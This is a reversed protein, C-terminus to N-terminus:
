KKAAEGNVAALAAQAQKKFEDVIGAPIREDFQQLQVAAELALLAEKAAPGVARMVKFAGIANSIHNKDYWNGESICRKMLPVAEKSKAGFKALVNFCFDRYEQITGATIDGICFSLAGVSFGEGVLAKELRNVVNPIVNDHVPGVEGIAWVVTTSIDRDGNMMAILRDIHCASLPGMRGATWAAASHVMYMESRSPGTQPRDHHAEDEFLVPLEPICLKAAPGMMGCAKVAERRVDSYHDTFIKVLGQTVKEVEDSPHADKLIQGLAKAAAARNREFQTGELMPLIDPVAARSVPGYEGLTQAAVFRDNERESKLLPMVKPVIQARLEVPAEALTKAARVQFGRNADSMQKLIASIPKGGIM